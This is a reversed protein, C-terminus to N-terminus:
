TRDGNHYETLLHQHWLCAAPTNNYIFSTWFQCGECVGKALRVAPMGNGEDRSRGISVYTLAGPGLTAQWM